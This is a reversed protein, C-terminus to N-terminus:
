WGNGAVYKFVVPQIFIIRGIEALQGEDTECDDYGVFVAGTTDHLMQRQNSLVNRVDSLLANSARQMDGEDKKVMGYVLYEVACEQRGSLEMEGFREAGLIIWLSATEQAATAESWSECVRPQSNYGNAITIEDFVQRMTVYINDRVSM